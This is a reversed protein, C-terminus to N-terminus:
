YSEQYKKEFIALGGINNILQKGCGSIMEDMESRNM